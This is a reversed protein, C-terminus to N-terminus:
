RNIAEMKRLIEREAASLRDQFDLTDSDSPPQTELDAADEVVVASSPLDAVVAIM